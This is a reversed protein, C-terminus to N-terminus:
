TCAMPWGDGESVKWGATEAASRSEFIAENPCEPLRARMFYM